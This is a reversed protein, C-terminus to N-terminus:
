VDKKKSFLVLAGALILVAAAITKGGGMLQNFLTGLSFLAFFLLSLITLINIPILLWKNRPGFWYFEFLGVAPALIFGPWMYEWNGMLMAIQCVVGTTMLVGGPILVGSGKPALMFFYLWHFFLSLPIVFLTPWFLGIMQGPNLSDGKALMLCVGLLILFSALISRKNM